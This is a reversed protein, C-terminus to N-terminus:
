LSGRCHSLSSKREPLAHDDRKAFENKMAHTCCDIGILNFCYPCSARQESLCEYLGCTDPVTRCSGRVPFKFYKEM